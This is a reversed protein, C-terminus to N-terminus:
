KEEQHAFGGAKVRALAAKLNDPSVPGDALNNGGRIVKKGAIQVLRVSKTEGPEFRV